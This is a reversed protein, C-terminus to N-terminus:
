DGPETLAIEISVAVLFFEAVGWGWAPRWLKLRSVWGRHEFNNRSSRILFLLLTM